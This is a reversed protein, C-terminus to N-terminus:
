GLARAIVDQVEARDVDSAATAGRRAALAAGVVRLAHVYPEVWQVDLKIAPM